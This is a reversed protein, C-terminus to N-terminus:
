HGSITAADGSQWTAARSVPIASKAVAASPAEHLEVDPYRLCIALTAFGAVVVIAPGSLIFWVMGFRWWPAAPHPEDNSRPIPPIALNRPM